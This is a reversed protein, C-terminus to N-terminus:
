VGKWKNTFGVSIEANMIGSEATYGIFNNGKKLTFWYPNRGVYRMLNTITGDTKYLKCTVPSKETDIIVIENEHLTTNLRLIKTAEIADYIALNVIDGKCKITIRAGTEAGDNYVNTHNNERITSFPIGRSNIAFPFVFQKLLSSIDTSIELLDKLFPDPCLVALDVVENDTFLDIPCDQVYGECYVNKLGNRYYIKVYQETDTWAYLANRNTEVDGLFKITIIVNREYLTSGNYKAGKRNSSKATFITASPPNLGSVSLVEYRTGDNINVVSGSENELRLEFM